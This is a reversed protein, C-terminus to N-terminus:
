ELLSPGPEAQGTPSLFPPSQGARPAIYWSREVAVGLSHPPLLWCTPPATLPAPFPLHGRASAVPPRMARSWSEEVGKIGPVSGGTSVM